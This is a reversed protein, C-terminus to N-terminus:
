RTQDGNERLDFRWIEQTAGATLRTVNAVGIPLRPFARARGRRPGRRRSRRADQDDVAADDSAM